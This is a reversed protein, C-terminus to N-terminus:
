SPGAGGAGPAGRPRGLWRPALAAVALLVAAGGLLIGTRAPTGRGETLAGAAMTYAATAPLMCLWSIGVYRWFPIRTLGYAFNQLTFPFLPVLRTVM